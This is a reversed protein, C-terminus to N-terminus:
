EHMHGKSSRFILHEDDDGSKWPQGFFGVLAILGFIGVIGRGIKSM